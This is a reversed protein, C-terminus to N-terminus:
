RDLSLFVEVQGDHRTQINGFTGIEIRHAPVGARILANRLGDIRREGLVRDRAVSGNMDLSGEIGVHLTPDAQVLSAIKTLKSYDEERIRAQEGDFKFHTHNSWRRAEGRSKVYGRTNFDSVINKADDGNSGTQYPQRNEPDPGGYVVPDSHSACGILVIGAFAGALISYKM